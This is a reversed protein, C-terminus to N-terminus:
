KMGLSKRIAEMQLKNQKHKAELELIRNEEKNTVGFTFSDKSNGVNRDVGNNYDYNGDDDNDDNDGDDYDNNKITRHKGDNNSDRCKVKPKPINKSFEIAKQRNSSFKQESIQIDHKECSPPLKSQNSLVEKNFHQLKKSFEKIRELNARKCVLDERNLDSYSFKFILYIILSIITTHFVCPYHRRCTYASNLQTSIFTVPNSTASKLM